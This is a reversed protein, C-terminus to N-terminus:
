EKGKVLRQSQEKEVEITQSKEWKDLYAQVAIFKGKRVVKSYGTLKSANHKWKLKIELYKNWKQNIRQSESIILANTLKWM